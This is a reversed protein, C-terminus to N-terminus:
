SQVAYCLDERVSAALNAARTKIPCIGNLAASRSLGRATAFDRKAALAADRAARTTFWSEDGEAVHNYFASNRYGFVLRNGHITTTM